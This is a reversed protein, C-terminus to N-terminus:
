VSVSMCVYVYTRPLAHVPRHPCTRQTPDAPEFRAETLLVAAGDATTRWLGHGQVDGETEGEGEAEGDNGDHDPAGLQCYLSPAPYAATDRTVAHLFIARYPFALGQGAV